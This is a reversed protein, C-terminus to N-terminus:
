DDEKEKRGSQSQRKEDNKARRLEAKDVQVVQFSTSADVHVADPIAYKWHM